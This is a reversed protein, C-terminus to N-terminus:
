ASELALASAVRAFAPQLSAWAPAEFGRPRRAPGANIRAVPDGKLGFVITNSGESDPVALVSGSFSRRIRELLQGFRTHGAHLNVVLRGGDALAEFCDDYFRQTSLAQPQGDYDFGDILLVEPRHALHRLWAAGDALDIQFRASDPPIAFDDRLALVHPNIEAVCLRARPLQRHCFKALSGGGLGVMALERPALGWLLFGMMLRTYELELADPQRVDMRSQLESMSFHLTKTTLSLSVYPKVHDGPAASAVDAAQPDQAVRQVPWFRSLPPM